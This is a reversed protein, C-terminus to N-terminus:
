NTESLCGTVSGHQIAVKATGDPGDLDHGVFHILIQTGIESTGRLSFIGTDVFQGSDGSWSGGFWNTFAGSYTHSKTEVVFTGTETYTLQRVLGDPDDDILGLLEEDSLGAQTAGLHVNVSSDLTVTDRVGCLSQKATETFTEHETTHVSYQYLRPGGAGAPAAVLGLGGLTLAAATLLRLSVRMMAGRSILAGQRCAGASKRSNYSIRGARDVPTAGDHGPGIWVTNPRRPRTAAVALQRYSEALLPPM